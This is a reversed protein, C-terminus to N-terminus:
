VFCIVNLSVKSVDLLIAPRINSESYFELLRNKSNVTGDACNVLLIQSSSRGKRTSTKEQLVNDVFVCDFVVVINCFQSFNM